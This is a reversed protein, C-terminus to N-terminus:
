LGLLELLRETIYFLGVGVFVMISMWVGREQNIEPILDSAAVYLSVGASLALAHSFFPQLAQTLLTGLLTAVGLILASLRAKKKSRGSALTISAMTFGEPLKHLIVATFILIGLSSDVLFGSGISVGDFLAHVTLGFLASLGVGRHIEVEELHTEEGFHFHPAATHEFFHILFYGLLVFLPALESHELSIPIMKLFVAALLFGSGFAMCYKLFQRNVARSTIVLLGGLLNALGAVLGLVLTIIFTDTFM